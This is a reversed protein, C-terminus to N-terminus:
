CPQILRLGWIRSRQAELTPVFVDRLPHHLHHFFRARPEGLGVWRGEADNVWEVVGGRMLSLDLLTHPELESKLGDWLRRATPALQAEVDIPLVSIDQRDMWHFALRWERVTLLRFGDGHWDLYAQADEPLLGTVFFGEYDAFSDVMPSLRRNLRLLGAYWADGHGPLRAQVLFQEFQPKTLPFLHVFANLPEVRVMLYGVRDVTWEHRVIGSHPQVRTSPTIAPATQLLDLLASLSHPTVELVRSDAGQLSEGGVRVLAWTAGSGVWDALDFVEGAGVVVIAQPNKRALRLADMVPAVFSGSNRAQLPLPMDVRWESAEWRLSTGLLYVDSVSEAPLTGILGAIAKATQSWFPAASESADAILVLLLKPNSVPLLMAEVM